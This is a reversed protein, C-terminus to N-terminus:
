VEGNKVTSRRVLGGRGLRCALEGLKELIKYHLITEGIM